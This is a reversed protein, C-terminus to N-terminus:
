AALSLSIGPVLESPRSRSHRSTCCQATYAASCTETSPDCMHVSNGLPVRLGITLEAADLQRSNGRDVGVYSYNFLWIASAVGYQPCPKM